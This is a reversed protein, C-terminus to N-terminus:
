RGPGTLLARDASSTRQWYPGRFHAIRTFEQQDPISWSLLFGDDDYAFTGALAGDPALVAVANGRREIRADGYRIRRPDGSSPPRASPDECEICRDEIGLPPIAESGDGPSPQLISRPSSLAAFVRLEADAPLLPLLLPIEDAFRFSPDPDLRASARAEEEWYSDTILERSSADYRQFVMGCANQCSGSAKVLELNDRRIWVSSMFRYGYSGTIFAMLRNHKLVPIADEGPQDRKTLDRPDLHERVIYDQAQAQQWEGYRKVRGTFSLVVAMGDDWAPDAPKASVGLPPQKGPRQGQACALLLVPLLALAASSRIRTM